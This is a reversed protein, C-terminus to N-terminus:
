ATPWKLVDELKKPYDEQPWKRSHVVADPRLVKTLKEQCGKDTFCKLEGDVYVLTCDSDSDFGELHVVDYKM